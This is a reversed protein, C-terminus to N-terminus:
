GREEKGHKGKQMFETIIDIIVRGAGIVFILPIFSEIILGARYVKIIRRTDWSIVNSKCYSDLEVLTLHDYECCDTYKNKKAMNIELGKDQKTQKGDTEM